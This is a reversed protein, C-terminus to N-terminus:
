MCCDDLEDEFRSLWSPDEALLKSIDVCSDSQSVPTPDMDLEMTQKENGPKTFSRANKVGIFLSSMTANYVHKLKARLQEYDILCFAENREPLLFTNSEPICSNNIDFRAWTYGKTIGRQRNIENNCLRRAHNAVYLKNVFWTVSNLSCHELLELECTRCLFSIETHKKSNGSYSCDRITQIQERTPPPAGPKTVEKCVEDLLPDSNVAFELKNIFHVRINYEPLVSHRYTNLLSDRCVDCTRYLLKMTKLDSKIDIPVDYLSGEEIFIGAAKLITKQQPPYIVAPPLPNPDMEDDLHSFFYFPVLQYCIKPNGM